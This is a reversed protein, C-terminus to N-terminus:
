RAETSRRRATESRPLGFVDAIAARYRQNVEFMGRQRVQQITIQGYSYQESDALSYHEFGNVEAPHFYKRECARARQEWTWWRAVDKKVAEPQSRILSPDNWLEWVSAFSGNPKVFYVGCRPDVYAWHDDVFIESCIHGGIDHMVIRGPIGAVECLAVMLRGLCECLIEGKAVLQEETGGYVYRTEFADTYWRADYLDRCTRMIALVKDRTTECGATSKAVVRELTPRSGPVYRAVKPAVPGYLLDVTQPCLLIQRQRLQFEVNNGYNLRLQKYNLLYAERRRQGVVVDAAARGTYRALDDRHRAVPGRFGGAMPADEVAEALADSGGLIGVLGLVLVALCGRQLGHRITM